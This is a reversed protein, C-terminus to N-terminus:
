DGDLEEMRESLGANELSLSRMHENLRRVEEELKAVQDAFSAKEILVGEQKAKWNRKDVEIKVVKAKMEECEISKRDSDSQLTEMDSIREVAKVLYSSVQSTTYCLSDAM